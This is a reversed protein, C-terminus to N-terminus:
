HSSFMLMKNAMFCSSRSTFKMWTLVLERVYLHTDWTVGKTGNRMSERIMAHLAEIRGPQEFAAFDSLPMRQKMQALEKDRDGVGSTTMMSLMMKLLIPAKGAFIFVLRNIFPLSAIAEPSDMRRGGSVIVPSHIREPIQAACVTVYPGGGSNGLISFKDLKLENALVFVDSPWDSFKRRPQFTSQGIGQRDPAIVRLHLNQLVDDGVLLPELRSAPSGHFYLIPFGDPKGFEAYALQRGYPLTISKEINM